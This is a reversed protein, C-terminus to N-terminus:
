HAPLFPLAIEEKRRELALEAEVEVDLIAPIVEEFLENLPLSRVEDLSLEARSPAYRLDMPDVGTLTGTVPVGELGVLEPRGLLRM